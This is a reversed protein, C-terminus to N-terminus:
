KSRFATALLSMGNAFHSISLPNEFRPLVVSIDFPTKRSKTKEYVHGSGSTQTFGRSKSVSNTFVEYTFTQSSSVIEVGSLASLSSLFDGVPLLWDFVFSWPLAEWAVLTPNLVGLNDLTTIAASKIRFWTALTQKTICDRVKSTDIYHGFEHRENKVSDKSTRKARTTISYVPDRFVKNGAAYIDSLLPLWGYQLELWRQPVNQSKPAGKPTVGLAAAAKRWKGKKLLNLSKVISMVNSTIMSITEKRTRLTDLINLSKEGIRNRHKMILMANDNQSFLLKQYDWSTYAVWTSISKKNGYLDSLQMTSWRNKILEFGHPKQRLPSLIGHSVVNRLSNVSTWYSDVTKSDWSYPNM